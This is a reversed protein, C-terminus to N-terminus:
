LSGLVTVRTPLKRFRPILFLEKPSNSLIRSPNGIKLAELNEIFTLPDGISMIGGFRPTSQSRSEELM